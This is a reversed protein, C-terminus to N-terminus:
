LIFFLVIDRVCRTPRASLLDDHSIFRCFKSMKIREVGYCLVDGAEGWPFAADGWKHEGIRLMWLSIHEDGDLVVALSRAVDPQHEPKGTDAAPHHLLASGFFCVLVVGVFKGHIAEDTMVVSVIQLNAVIHWVEVAVFLALEFAAILADGETPLARSVAHRRDDVVAVVGMELAIQAGNELKQRPLHEAIECVADIAQLHVAGSFHQARSREAKLFVPWLRCLRKHECTVVPQCLLPAVDIFEGVGADLMQWAIAM